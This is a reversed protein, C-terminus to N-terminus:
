RGVPTPIVRAKKFIDAATYAEKAASNLSAQTPRGEAILKAAVRAYIDAALETKFSIM